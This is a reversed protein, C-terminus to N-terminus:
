NHLRQRQTAVQLNGFLTPFEVHERRQQCMLIWCHWAGEMRCHVLMAASLYRHPLLCLKICMLVSHRAPM